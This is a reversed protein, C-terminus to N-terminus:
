PMAAAGGAAAAAELRWSNGRCLTPRVPEGKVGNRLLISGVGGISALSAAVCCCYCCCCCCCCCCASVMFPSSLKGCCAARVEFPKALWTTALTLLTLM